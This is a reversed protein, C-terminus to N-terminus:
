ITFVTWSSVEMVEMFGWAENSLFSHPRAHGRFEHSHLRTWRAIFPAKNQIIKRSDCPAFANLFSMTERDDRTSMAVAASNSRFVYPRTSEQAQEVSLSTWAEVGRVLRQYSGSKIFKSADYSLYMPLFITATSFASSAEKVADCGFTSCMMSDMFYLRNAPPLRMRGTSHMAAHSINPPSSSTAMGVATAISIIWVMDSMWSSKGDM